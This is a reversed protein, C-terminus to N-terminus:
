QYDVKTLYAAIAAFRGNTTGGVAGTLKADYIEHATILQVVVEADPQQKELAAMLDAVTMRPFPNMTTSM